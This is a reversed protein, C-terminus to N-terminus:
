GNLAKVQRYKKAITKALFLIDESNLEKSFSLSLAWRSEIEEYGMEQLVRSPKSLGLSCGEGNTVYIDGLSLTRIIERAKIGKLGFHLTYPLTDNPNVFYYIDDGIEKDICSKFENKYESIGRFSDVANSIEYVAITDISGLYQEEFVENHLIISSFSFGTLKFSELLAIDCYKVDFSSSINSIIKGDSLEKVKELDVKVYTDMIYSSIFIYDCRKIEEYNIHGDKKLSIFEIDFGLQKYANAADIIAQSEGSSVLIKGKLSLMMSLFGDKSFSFTNLSKFGFTLRFKKIFTEVNTNDKLAELAKSSDIQITNVEPYQLFNLKYM